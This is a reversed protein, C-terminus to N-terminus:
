SEKKARAQLARPDVKGSATTPLSAVVHLQRPVLYPPLRRRLEGLLTAPAASAGVVFAALQQGGAGDIAVVAAETVGATARLAAEVEGPDVRYGAIKVMRDVRGVYVVEGNDDVRVLDRTRFWRRGDRQVFAEADADPRNVYGAFLFDGAVLLESEEGRAPPQASSGAEFALAAGEIPRGLPLRDPLADGPPFALTTVLAAETSGYWAHFTARPFVPRLARLATTDPPEGAFILARLSPFCHEGISRLGALRHLTTPVTYLLTPTHTALLQLLSGPALTVEPPVLVLEAGSRVAMHLDFSALDFSLPALNAVVDGPGCALCAACSDFYSRAAGHSIAVGKPQGTSGSTFHVYAVAKDHADVADDGGEHAWLADPALWAVDVDVALTPGASKASVVARPRAAEIIAAVRARPMGLDIPVYAAGALVVGFCVSVVEPVKDMWVCVLDGAGVGHARLGAAVARAQADVVSWRLRRGRGWVGREGAAARALAGRLHLEM